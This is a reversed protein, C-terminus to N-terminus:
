GDFKGEVALRRLQSMGDRIRTKVTGLPLNERAAIESHSLGQFYAIEILRRQQMPLDALADRVSSRTQERALEQEPGMPETEHTPESTARDEARQGAERTRLLDIMANRVIRLVWARASGRRRDFGRARRWVRVFAEQVADQALDSDGASIRLALGFALPALRDYLGALAGSDGRAIRRMLATEIEVPTRAVSGVTGFVPSFAPPTYAASTTVTISIRIPPAV